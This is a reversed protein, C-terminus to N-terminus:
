PIIVFQELHTLEKPFFDRGYAVLKQRPTTPAGAPEPKFGKRDVGAKPQHDQLDDATLRTGFRENMARAIVSLEEGASLVQDIEKDLRGDELYQEQFGILRDRLRRVRM